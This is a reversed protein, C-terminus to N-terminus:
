RLRQDTLTIEAVMWPHLKCFYPYNGPALPPRGPAPQRTDLTFSQGPQLLTANTPSSDFLTGVNVRNEFPGGVRELSTVTHPHKNTSPNVFVITDRERM